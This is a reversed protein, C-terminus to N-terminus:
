DIVYCRYIYISIMACCKGKQPGEQVKRGQTEEVQVEKREQIEQRAQEEQPIEEYTQGQIEQGERPAVEEEVEQGKYEM